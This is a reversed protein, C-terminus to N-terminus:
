EDDEEKTVKNLWTYIVDKAMNKIEKPEEPSNMYFHVIFGIKSELLFSKNISLNRLVDLLAKKIKINPLSKDPLPELWKRVVELINEHLLQGQLDKNQLSSVFLELNELKNLAPLSNKNNINDQLVAALM